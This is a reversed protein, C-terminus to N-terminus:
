DGQQQRLVLHQAAEGIKCSLTRGKNKQATRLRYTQTWCKMGSVQLVCGRPGRKPVGGEWGYMANKRKKKHTNRTHNREKTPRRCSIIPRQCNGQGDASRGTHRIDEQRICRCNGPRTKRMKENWTECGERRKRQMTPQAQKLSLYMM